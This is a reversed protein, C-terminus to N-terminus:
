RDQETFDSSLPNGMFKFTKELKPVHFIGTQIALQFLSTQQFEHITALSTGQDSYTVPSESIGGMGEGLYGCGPRYGSM